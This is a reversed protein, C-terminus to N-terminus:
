GLTAEAGVEGAIITARQLAEIGAERCAPSPAERGITLDLIETSSLAKLLADLLLGHLVEVGSM